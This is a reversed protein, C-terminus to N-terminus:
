CQCGISVGGEPSVFRFVAQVARLASEERLPRLLVDYGGQQIVDRRLYDDNVPSVLLIRSQPSCAALRDMVERWPYGPQNHDCLILQFHRRSALNLRERPSYTFRLEWDHQKGLRQLLFRDEFSMSLVLIRVRGEPVPRSGQRKKFWDPLWM